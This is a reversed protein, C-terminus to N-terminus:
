PLEILTLATAFTNWMLDNEVMQSNFKVKKWYSMSRAGWVDNTAKAVVTLLGSDRDYNYNTGLTVYGSLASFLSGIAMTDARVFYSNTDFLFATAANTVGSDVALVSNVCNDYPDKIVFPLTTGRVIDWFAWLSSQKIETYLSIPLTYRYLPRVWNTFGQVDGSDYVNSNENWAKQRTMTAYLPSFPFTPLAM